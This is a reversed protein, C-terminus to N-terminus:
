PLPPARDTWPRAEEIRSALALLTGEEGFRAVAQVGVPLGGPTWHLPLSAAPQGTVNWVPTFPVFAFTREAAQELFPGVRMLRGARIRAAFAHLAAEAGQPALAGHPVPVRALTPTLLIDYREFFPAISRTARHLRELALSFDAATFAAGLDRALVTAHELEDRRAKVGTAEEAFAIEQAVAALFVTLFWTFYGAPVPPAAGEVHHGLEECLRGAAEVAARCEPDVPAGNPADACVAIRLPGQAAEALEAFPRPPPAIGYPAGLDPGAIADLLRASDRVSRTLVHGVTAGHWAEGAYPGNPTRGRSPKLGFLGCCSAPIRISGGGDTGHAMPVARAAVLAAAGGSSGGATRDPAWPNAVPHRGRPETVPTLSLEPVRTTGLVILGAARFRRVMESDAPPRWGRWIRSGNHYPVGEAVHVNDKLLFPVGAFPGAKRQPERAEARAREFVRETMAHLVPEAREIRAIAEEVLEAASAEGRVVLAALATADLSAYADSPM